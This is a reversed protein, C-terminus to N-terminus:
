LPPLQDTDIIDQRYKEFLEIRKKVRKLFSEDSEDWIKLIKIKFSPYDGYPNNWEIYEENEDM